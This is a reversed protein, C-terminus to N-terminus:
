KGAILHQTADVLKGAALGLAKDLDPLRDRKYLEDLVAAGDAQRARAPGCRCRTRPASTRLGKTRRRRPSASAHSSTVCSPPM